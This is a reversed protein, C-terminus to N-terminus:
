GLGMSEVPFWGLEVPDIPLWGLVFPMAAVGWRRLRYSMRAM